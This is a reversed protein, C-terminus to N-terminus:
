DHVAGGGVEALAEPREAPGAGAPSSPGRGHSQFFKGGLKEAAALFAAVMDPDFQAGAGRRIEELAQEPGKASRFSRCSTMADFADAIAVIRCIPPIGLGSLGEPYGKGDFREHHFRVVPIVQELFETGELIRAGILPHRCMAEFQEDDLKGPCLLVAEPLALMGIDHLLAAMEIQKILDESLALQKGIMSSYHQVKRAHDAMHPDRREMARVIEQLARVFLSKFQTDLGALKGRLMEVRDTEGSADAWDDGGIEAAHVFRNRGFQKAAYLAADALGVLDLATQVEPNELDAIGISLTVALETGDVVMPEEAVQKRIREAVVAAAVAPTEPLVVAFEDGGLRAPLDAKRCCRRIVGAVIRIVEDGAPHGKMDNIAKFLDIDMVLVSLPRFYRRAQHFEAQLSTDFQRRNALGTMEDTRSQENMSELASQLKRALILPEAHLGDSLDELTREGAEVEHLRRVLRAIPNALFIGAGLIVLSVVGVSLILVILVTRRMASVQNLVQPMSIDARFYGIRRGAADRAPWAVALREQPLPWTCCYGLDEATSGAPIDANQVLVVEAALSEGISELLGDSWRRALYVREAPANSDPGAALAGSAFLAWEVGLGMLGAEPAPGGPPGGEVPAALKALAAHIRAESIPPAGKSWVHRVSGDASVIWAVDVALLEAAWRDFPEADTTTLQELEDSCLEQLRRQEMHVAWTVDHETKGAQERLAFTRRRITDPELLLADLLYIGGAALVAAILLVGASTLRPKAMTVCRGQRSRFEAPLMRMSISVGKM